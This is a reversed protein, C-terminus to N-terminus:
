TTGCWRPFPFCGPTCPQTSSHMRARALGERGEVEGFLLAACMALGDAFVM